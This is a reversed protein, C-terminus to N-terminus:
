KARNEHAGQFFLFNRFRNLLYVLTIKITLCVRVLILILIRINIKSYRINGEDVNNIILGNIVWSSYFPDLVNSETEGIYTSTPFLGNVQSSRLKLILNAYCQESESFSSLLFSYIWISGSKDHNNASKWDIDGNSAIIFKCSFHRSKVLARKLMEENKYYFCFYKLQASVMAHYLYPVSLTYSQYPFSGNYFQYILTRAVSRRVSEDYMRLRISKSDLLDAVERLAQASLLDTNFVKSRNLIAKFVAGHAENKYLLDSCKLLWGIDDSKWKKYYRAIAICAFSTPVAGYAGVDEDEIQYFKEEFGGCVYQMEKLKALLEDAIEKKELVVSALLYSSVIEVRSTKKRLTDEFVKPSKTYNGLYSVIIDKIYVDM